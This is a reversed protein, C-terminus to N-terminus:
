VALGEPRLLEVLRSHLLESGPQPHPSASRGPRVRRSRDLTSKRLTPSIGVRRALLTTPWGRQLRRRDPHQGLPCSEIGDCYGLAGLVGTTLGGAELVSAALYTTTARGSGGTVGVTKLRQGPQGALAQCIRAAADHSDHVLCFPAGCEIPREAVVAVAGAAVARQAQGHGDRDGEVLAVYIDGPQCRNAVTSCATVRIDALRGFEAEPLVDRLNIGRLNTSKFRM